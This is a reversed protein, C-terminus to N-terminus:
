WHGPRRMAGSFWFNHYQSLNGCFVTEANFHDLCLLLTMHNGHRRLDDIVRSNTRFSTWASLLYLMMVACARRSLFGDAVPPNGASYLPRRAIPHSIKLADCNTIWKPAFIILTTTQFDERTGTNVTYTNHLYFIVHFWPKSVSETVSAKTFPIWRDIGKM